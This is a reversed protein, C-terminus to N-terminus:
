RKFEEEKKGKEREEREKRQKIIKHRVEDKLLEQENFFNPNQMNATMNAAMIEAIEKATQGTTTQNEERFDEVIKPDEEHNDFDETEEDEETSNVKEQM